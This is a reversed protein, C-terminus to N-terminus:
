YSVSQIDILERQYKAIMNNFKDAEKQLEGKLKRIDRDKKRVDGSSTTARTEIPKSFSVQVLKNIAQITSLSNHTHTHAHIVNRVFGVETKLQKEHELAIELKKLQSKADQAEKQAM